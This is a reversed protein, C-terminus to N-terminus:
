KKLLKRVQSPAFIAAASGLALLGVILKRNRGEKKGVRAYFEPSRSDGMNRPNPLPPAEDLRGQNAMQSRREVDRDFEDFDSYGQQQALDDIMPKLFEDM